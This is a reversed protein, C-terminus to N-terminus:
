ERREGLSAPLRQIFLFELAIKATHIPKKGSHTSRVIILLGYSQLSRLDITFCDYNSLSAPGIKSAPHSDRKHKPLSMTFMKSPTEVLLQFHRKRGKQPEEFFVLYYKAYPLHPNELIQRTLAFVHDEDTMQSPHTDNCQQKNHRRIASM